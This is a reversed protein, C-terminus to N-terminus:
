ADSALGNQVERLLREPSYPKPLFQLGEPLASSQGENGPSCGSTYVVKLNPKSQRLQAALDRGSIGDSVFADVLLLDVNAAQGEWLVLAVSSSDAEIVRYGNWNLVCRAMGRVRDDPEVLLVTPRAQSRATQSGTQPLVTSAPACHLFVRFETGVGVESTFEIWGSQQQVAGYVSALGLGAAKGIEKTTFFPEFIHEQVEPTMGCGTDRVTLRIFETAGSDRDGQPHSARVTATSITLTGGTPMADRANLALNTIIHEILHVDGRAPVVLLGYTERLVIQEGVLRRLMHNANRILGNLDLPELQVFQRGSAALLQRTLNAARTVASSVHKMQEASKSDQPKIELLSVYGQIIALINNFHHAVGGAMQRIVEMKQVQRTEAERRRRQGVDHTLVLRAPFDSLDVATLEVEILTRDKRYHQWFGRTQMRSCPKSVDQLFAAAAEAPLLDPATLAMFEGETYGYQRLAANNVALFRRSPLDFLYMPEPNETFLFRYRAESDRIAKENQERRALRGLLEQNAKALDTIEKKAQLEFKSRLREEQSHAQERESFLSEMHGMGILLLVAGVAYILDPVIGSVPSADMWKPTGALHLLGLSVFATVIFWGVRQTGFRRVLRLAYSPVTLQLAGAILTGTM